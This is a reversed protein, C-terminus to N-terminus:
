QSLPQVPIGPVAPVVDFSETKKVVLLRSSSSGDVAAKKLLEKTKSRLKRGEELRESPPLKADGFDGYEAIPLLNAVPPTPIEKVLPAEEAKVAAASEPTSPLTIPETVFIPQPKVVHVSPSQNNGGRAGNTLNNIAVIGGTLAGGGGGGGSSIDGSGEGSGSGNVVIRGSNGASGGSVGGSGDGSSSGGGGLTGGGGRSGFQVQNVYSYGVGWGYSYAYAPDAESHPESAPSPNAGGLLVAQFFLTKKKFIHEM